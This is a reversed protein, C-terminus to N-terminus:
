DKIDSINGSVDNGQSDHGFYKGDKLEKVFIEEDSNSVVWKGDFEEVDGVFDLLEEESDNVFKMHGYLSKQFEWYEKIIKM